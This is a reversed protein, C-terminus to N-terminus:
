AHIKWHGYHKGGIYEILGMGKLLKIKKQILCRMTDILGEIADQSVDTKEMLDGVVKLM